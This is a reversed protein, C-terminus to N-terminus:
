WYVLLLSDTTAPPSVLVLALLILPSNTSRVPPIVPSVLVLLPRWMGWAGIIGVAAIVMTIVGGVILLAASSVTDNGTIVDYDSGVVAGWVGISFVLAGLM